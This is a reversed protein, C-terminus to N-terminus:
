NESRFGLPDDGPQTTDPKAFTQACVIECSHRMLDVHPREKSAFRQCGRTVFDSLEPNQDFTLELGKDGVRAAALLQEAGHPLPLRDALNADKLIRRSTMETESRSRM